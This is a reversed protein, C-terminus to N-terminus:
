LNIILMGQKKGDDGFYTIAGNPCQNKCGHCGFVCYEPKVVLPSEDELVYVQNPCFEFCILCNTCVNRNIIPYWDVTM